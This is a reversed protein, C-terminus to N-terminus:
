LDKPDVYKKREDETYALIGMNMAETGQISKVTVCLVDSRIM